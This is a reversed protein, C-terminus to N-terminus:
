SISVSGYGPFGSLYHARLAERAQRSDGSLVAGSLDRHRQVAGGPGTGRREIESRLVAGMQSDLISWLQALRQRGSLGVLHRHFRTDSAVLADLDNAQVAADMEAMAAALQGALEGPQARVLGQSLSADELIYRAYCVDEADGASM